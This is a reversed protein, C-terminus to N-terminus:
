VLYEEKRNGDKTREYQVGDEATKHANIGVRHGHRRHRKDVRWGKHGHHNCYEFIALGKDNAETSANHAVGKTVVETHKHGRKQLPQLTTLSLRLLARFSIKYLASITDYLRTALALNYSERKRYTHAYNVLKTRPSLVIIQM